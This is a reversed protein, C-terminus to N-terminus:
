RLPSNPALVGFYRHRHTRPPPVLPPLLTSRWGKLWVSLVWQRVPLRPFVHDTLHAATEVMRRCVRNLGTVAIHKQGM